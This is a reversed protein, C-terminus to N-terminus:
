RGAEPRRGHGGGPCDREQPGRGVGGRRSRRAPHTQQADGRYAEAGRGAGGVGDSSTYVGFSPGAFVQQVAQALSAETSAVVAAAPLLRAIEEALNPGSLVAVRAVGTVEEVVQSMRLLHHDTFHLGKTVSVYAPARPLLGLTARIAKSPVAVVVFQAKQLAEEADATPFLSEPFIAGLLYESNQREEQMAQAHEARRAWLYVPVGKSSALLALATGWAGAGVIAIPAFRSEGAKQPQSRSLTSSSMVSM